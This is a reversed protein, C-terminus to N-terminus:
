RLAKSVIEYVDTSLDQTELIRGLEAKMLGQRAEDYKRWRNFTGVMRAAVQPNLANLTIVQDALFRYGSGDRAHFRLPNRVAFSGILARVKNPNKIDFAAHHMLAKVDDLVGERRSTAQLAFWKDVVLAEDKWTDYFHNLVTEREAHEGQVLSAVATLADTMNNAGYYQQTCLASIAEDELEMLYSLCANKLARRGAAWANYVYAENSNNDQYTKILQDRLAQAISARLHQRAAHIAEPDAVEALEALYGESPLQLVEVVLAKDLSTDQLLSGMANIFLRDVSLPEGQQVGTILKQLLRTALQQSADWRNFDDSDHALQFALDEDSLDTQLYVPASFGRLLSPVPRSPINKFEFSQEFQTLELLRGGTTGKDENKLTLPLDNGDADLLGIAVPIFSAQKDGQGPTAPTHQKFTVTYSQSQKDYHTNVQLRPTGAQSYWIRFHDLNVNNADAMAAVFDDTTVAQGDHRKFYLDMGKRFGGAGLLTHIMRIVEAGKEYVTATYFNNIEVYAAPRIPHAMPGSDEPFQRGRLMRVDAIRKVGCSGMAASFEQDRFVTLGEKLSLQFWDRCTVRNGTWNHFYEHGIVGEIGAYDNDTATEPKALVYATNFVNLGKNEMAGMNFDGVAVIMYIDLDYELGFVKEDWAMAHKLSDMAHRCKDLNGPEVFLQLLVDRGSGTIYHDELCVLNGAVLAFLYCPKPFPDEWTVWHRGDDHEGRAVPNGNSLLVPYRSKDASITTKFRAMVDPRDLYYTIKRFGEAECQTCFKGNSVYLGELSTNQQPRIRTVVELVFKDPVQVITLSEADSQYASADLSQGDLALALLEVQEGMLVLPQGSGGTNARMQLRSQVQTSDDGLEFALDVRDILYDSPRYDKLYITKPSADRMM